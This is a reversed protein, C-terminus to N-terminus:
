QRSKHQYYSRWRLKEEERQVEESIEEDEDEEINEFHNEQTRQIINMTKTGTNKSCDSKVHGFQGCLFCKPGRKPGEPTTEPLVSKGIPQETNAKSTLLNSQLLEYSQLKRKFESFDSADYMFAKSESSGPLGDVTYAIIAADDVEGQKGTKIMEYMYEINTENRKKKREKLRQHIIASNLKKGFECTMESRLESWTKAKSEYEVFLKATGKMLRKAYAFRQFCDLNFLDAQNTFQEIWSLVSMQGNGHFEKFSKEVDEFRM